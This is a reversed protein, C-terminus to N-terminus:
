KKQERFGRIFYYYVDYQKQSKLYYEKEYLWEKLMCCQSELRRVGNTNIGTSRCMAFSICDKCPIQPETKENM